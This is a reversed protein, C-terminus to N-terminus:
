QAFDPYLSPYNSQTPAHPRFRFPHSFRARRLFIALFQSLGLIGAIRRPVATQSSTISLKRCWLVDDLTSLSQFFILIQYHISSGPPDLNSSIPNSPIRIPHPPIKFNILNQYTWIRKELIRNSKGPLSPTRSLPQYNLHCPISIRPKKKTKKKPTHVWIPM